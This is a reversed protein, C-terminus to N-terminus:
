IGTGVELFLKREHRSAGTELPVVHINSRQYHAIGVRLVSLLVLVDYSNFTRDMDAKCYMLTTSPIKM